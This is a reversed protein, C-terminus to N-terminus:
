PVAREPPHGGDVPPYRQEREGGELHHEADVVDDEDRDQGPLERGTLGVPRSRIRMTPPRNRMAFLVCSIWRLSSPSSSCAGPRRAAENAPTIVWIRSSSMTNESSETIVATPIASCTATIIAATTMATATVITDALTTLSNTSFCGVTFISASLKRSSMPTDSIPSPVPWCM